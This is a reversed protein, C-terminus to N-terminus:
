HVEVEKKAAAEILAQIDDRRIALEINKKAEERATQSAEVRIKEIDLSVSQRTKDIATRADTKVDDISHYLFWTAVAVVLGVAGGVLWVLHKFFEVLEKYHNESDSFQAPQNHGTPISVSQVEILNSSTALRVVIQEKEKSVKLEKNCSTCTVAKTNSPFNQQTGCGPCFLVSM